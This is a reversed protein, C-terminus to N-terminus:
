RLVALVTNYTQHSRFQWATLVCTARRLGLVRRPWRQSIRTGSPSSASLASTRPPALAACASANSVLALTSVNSGCSAGQAARAHGRPLYRQHLVHQARSDPFTHWSAHVCPPRRFSLMSRSATELLRFQDPPLGSRPSSEVAGRGSFVVEAKKLRARSYTRLM